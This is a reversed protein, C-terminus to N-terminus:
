PASLKKRWDRTFAFCFILARRDQCGLFDLRFHHNIELDGVQVIKALWNKRLGVDEFLSGVNATILLVPKRMDAVVTLKPGNMTALVQSGNAQFCDPVIIAKLVSSNIEILM